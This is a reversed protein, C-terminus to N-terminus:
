VWRRVRQRYTTFEEGFIATLVREEPGIQFRNMYLVFAPIFVLSLANSLLFAVGVLALVFGLYMPNRSVRYVGGSVLSSTSQPRTPNVTTRARRFAAVGFVAVLGGVFLFFVAAIHRYPLQWTFSPAFVSASWMGAAALLVLAVPPVKLELKKM